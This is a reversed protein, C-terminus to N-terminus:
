SNLAFYRRLRSYRTFQMENSNLTASGLSYKGPRERRWGRSQTEQEAPWAPDLFEILSKYSDDFSLTSSGSALAERLKRLNEGAILTKEERLCSFDFRNAGIRLTQSQACSHLDLVAEDAFFQSTDLIENESRRSMREKVEVQKVLLRGSVVLALDSWSLEVPGKGSTQQAILKDDGFELSRVLAVCHEQFGLDEDSLTLTEFGLRQLREFVLDAEDRSATRALPLPSGADVISKLTESKLKLLSAAESISDNSLLTTQVTVLICNYGPEHKEPQRLTPKRLKASSETLPLAASCYLCSVRTPPNARLCEECRIMQDAPFGQPEEPLVPGDLPLHITENDKPLLEEM